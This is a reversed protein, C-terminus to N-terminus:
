TRQTFWEIYLFSFFFFLYIFSISIPYFFVVALTFIIANVYFYFISYGHFCCVFILSIFPNCFLLGRTDYSTSYYPTNTYKHIHACSWFLFTRIFSFLIWFFNIHKTKIGQSCHIHELCLIKWWNEYKTQSQNLLM